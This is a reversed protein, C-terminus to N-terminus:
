ATRKRGNFGRRSLVLYIGAGIRGGSDSNTEFSTTAAIEALPIGDGSLRGSGRASGALTAVLSRNQRHLELRMIALEM